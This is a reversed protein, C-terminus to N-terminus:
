QWGGRILAAEQEPSLDGSVQHPARATAPNAGGHPKTVTVGHEVEVELRGQRDVTVQRAPQGAVEVARVGTVAGPQRVADEGHPKVTVTRVGHEIEVEVELVRGLDDVLVRDGSLVGDIDRDRLEVEARGQRRGSDDTGSRGTGSREGDDSRDGSGSSGGDDSGSRGSGSSGGDDSGSRGSGSSGGDDSGGGSGSGGGDDSGGGSGSSGGDDSGGGSDLAAAM